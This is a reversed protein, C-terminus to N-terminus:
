EIIKLSTAIGLSNKENDTGDGVTIVLNDEKLKQVFLKTRKIKILVVQREPDLSWTGKESKRSTIRQLTFDKFFEYTVTENINSVEQGSIIISKVGWKHCLLTKVSDVSINGVQAKVEFSLFIVLVSCLIFKIM